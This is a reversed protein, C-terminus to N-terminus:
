AYVGAKEAEIAGIVDAVRGQGILYAPSRNGLHAHVGHLWGEVTEPALWRSLMEVVLALGALRDANDADPNQGKRWRSVQSPSVDLIASVARYSGLAARCSKLHHASPSPILIEERPVGRYGVTRAISM